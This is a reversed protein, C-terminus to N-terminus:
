IQTLPVHWAGAPKGGLTIQYVNYLLSHQLHASLRTGLPIRDGSRGATSIIIHVNITDTKISM